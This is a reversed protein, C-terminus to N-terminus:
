SKVTIVRYLKYGGNEEKVSLAGDFDLTFTNLAENLSKDIKIKLGSETASPTELPYSTGNVVVTNDDHLIFRVEKLIGEPIEDQAIVETVGNQLDLLNITTDKADIAIWSENNVKVEMGKIHINVADYNTPNDTLLIQVPVRRSDKNCSSVLVAFLCFVVASLINTKM